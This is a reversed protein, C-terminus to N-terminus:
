FHITSAWVQDSTRRQLGRQAGYADQLNRNFCSGISERLNTLLNPIKPLLSNSPDQSKTDHSKYKKVFTDGM